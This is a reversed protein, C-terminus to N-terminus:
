IHIEMAIEDCNPFKPCDMCEKWVKHPMREKSVEEFGLKGFFIPQYTLTFVKKFALEKAENLLFEVLAKGIGQRGLDPRVAVARIEALDKWLIHLAGTAVIEGDIEAIAFDRILEYLCSRSRALMLGEQAYHYILEHIVEVDNINAKRIKMCNGETRGVVRFCGDRSTM